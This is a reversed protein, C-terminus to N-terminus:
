VFHGSQRRTELHKFLNEWDEQRNVLTIKSANLVHDKFKEMHDPDDLEIIVSGFSNKFWKGNEYKGEEWKSVDVKTATMKWCWVKMQNGNPLDKSIHSDGTQKYGSKELFAFLEALEPYPCAIHHGKKLLDNCRCKM